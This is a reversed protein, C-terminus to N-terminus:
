FDKKTDQKKWEVFKQELAAITASEIIFQLHGKGIWDMGRRQYAEDVMRKLEYLTFSTDDQKRKEIYDCMDEFVRDYTEEDWNATDIM